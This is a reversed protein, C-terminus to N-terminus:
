PIDIEIVVQQIKPDWYLNVIRYCGEPPVSKLKEKPWYSGFADMEYIILIKGDKDLVRLEKGVTVISQGKALQARLNDLPM